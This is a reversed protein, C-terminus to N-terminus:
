AEPYPLGLMRMTEFLQEYSFATIENFDFHQMSCFSQMHIKGKEPERDFRRTM